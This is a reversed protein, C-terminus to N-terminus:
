VATWVIAMKRTQDPRRQDSDEILGERSLESMCPQIACLDLGLEKALEDVTLGIWGAKRIAALAEHQLRRLKPALADAAAISTDVRRHGPANPYGTM